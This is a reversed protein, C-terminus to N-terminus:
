KRKILAIIALIIAAGAISLGFIAFDYAAGGDSAAVETEGSKLKAKHVQAISAAAVPVDNFETFIESIKKGFRKEIRTRALQSDFAPLKDQLLKLSEAVEVGILDPRTSLTQGFKIYIPGLEYFCDTLRRGFSEKPSIIIGKPYLFM